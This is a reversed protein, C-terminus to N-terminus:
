LLKWSQAPDSDTDAALAAVVVVIDAAVAIGVVATDVVAIDAVVVIDVSAVTDAAIDAALAIDALGTDEVPATGAPLDIDAVLAIDARIGAAFNGEALM